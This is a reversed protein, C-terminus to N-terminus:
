GWAFGGPRPSPKAANWKQYFKELDIKPKVPQAWTLALAALQVAAADLFQRGPLFGCFCSM